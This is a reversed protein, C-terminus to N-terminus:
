MPGPPMLLDAFAQISNAGTLPNDCYAADHKKVVETLIWAGKDDRYIRAVHMSYEGAAMLDFSPQVEIKNGNRSDVVRIYVNDVSGWTQGLNIADNIDAFIDGVVYKPDTLHVQWEIFEDAVGEEKSTMGTRDDASHHIYPVPDLDDYYCAIFAEGRADRLILSIDLDVPLPQGNPGMKPDWAIEIRAPFPSVGNSVSRNEGPKSKITVAM